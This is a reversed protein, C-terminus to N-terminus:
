GSSGGSSQIGWAILQAPNASPRPRPRAKDGAAQAQAQEARCLQGKSKTYWRCVRAANPPFGTREYELWRRKLEQWHALGAADGKDMSVNHLQMMAQRGVGWLLGGSMGQLLTRYGRAMVADIFPRMPVMCEIATKLVSGSSEICWTAIDHARGLTRPVEIVEFPIQPCLQAARARAAQVDESPYEGFQMTCIGFELGAQLM